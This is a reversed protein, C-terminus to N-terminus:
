ITIKYQKKWIWRTLIGMIIEELSLLVLYCLIGKVINLILGSSLILKMENLMKIIHVNIPISSVAVMVFMGINECRKFAPIIKLALFHVPISVIFLVVSHKIVALVTFALPIGFALIGIWKKLHLM